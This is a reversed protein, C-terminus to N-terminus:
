RGWPLFKSIFDPLQNANFKKSKELSMTTNDTTRFLVDLNDDGM